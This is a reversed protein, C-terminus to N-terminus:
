TSEPGAMKSVLEMLPKAGSSLASQQCSYAACTSSALSTVYVYYTAIAIWHHLTATLTILRRTWTCHFTDMSHM